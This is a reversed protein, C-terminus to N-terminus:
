LAARLSSRHDPHAIEVLARARDRLSLGRLEAVGYETVVVDALSRPVTVTSGPRLRTVIRSLAGKAAVSPLACVYRGNHGYAAGIAFDLHGGPGSYLKPGISEANIQGTLDIEIASNVGIFRNVKGLTAPDNTRDVPLMVIEPRSDIARYLEESGTVFTATIAPQGDPGPALTGAKMLDLASDSFTETLMRIGDKGAVGRLVADALKGIGLQITDGSRILGAVNTAIASTVADLPATVVAQLPEDVEVLHDIASIHVSTGCTRPMQRNIQAIVTRARSVAAPLYAVCTGLSCWGDEDPPSLHLVVVDCGVAGSNILTPTLGYCNPIFDASGAAIQERTSHGAMFGAHRVAAGPAAFYPLEDDIRNHLITFPGSAGAVLSEVIRRPWGGGHGIVVADDPRVFRAVDEVAFSKPRRTLDGGRTIRVVDTEM